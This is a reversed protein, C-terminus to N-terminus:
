EPTVGCPDICEDCELQLVRKFAGTRFVKFSVAGSEAFVGVGKAGVFFRKMMVYIGRM